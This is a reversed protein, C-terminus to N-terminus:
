DHPKSGSSALHHGIRMRHGDPTTLSFERMGWPEDALQGLRVALGSAEIRAHYTDANDVHLYSFYSHCGLDSAPMDDPCEGLMIMCRDKRLFVWGDPEAVIVFDLANVYFEASKRVDHVALVHHNELITSMPIPPGKM